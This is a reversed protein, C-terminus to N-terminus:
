QQIKHQLQMMQRESVKGIAGVDGQQRELRGAMNEIESMTNELSM